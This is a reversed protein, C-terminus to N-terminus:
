HALIDGQPDIGVSVRKGNATATGRWVGQGDLSLGELEKFGSATLKKTADAQSLPNMGPTLDGKGMDRGAAPGDTTASSNPQERM